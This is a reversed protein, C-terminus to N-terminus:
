RDQPEPLAILSVMAGNPNHWSRTVEATIRNAIDNLAVAAMGDIVLLAGAHLRALEARDMNDLATEIFAAIVDFDPRAADSMFGDGEVIFGLGHSKFQYSTM